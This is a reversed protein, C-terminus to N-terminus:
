YNEVVYGKNRSKQAHYECVQHPETVQKLGAFVNEIPLYATAVADNGCLCKNSM